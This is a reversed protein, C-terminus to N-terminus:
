TEILPHYHDPDDFGALWAAAQHCGQMTPPVRLVYQHGTSPCFVALCVLPEDNTMAVRLLERVGGPDSDSDLIEVQAESMFRAYGMRELLVRRKEANVESLVESSTIEEPRLLIREDILIGRWALEAKSVGSPLSTLNTDALDAESSIELDSPLETINVCGALDLQALRSLWTPLMTLNICNRALLSGFELRGRVPWESLNTCGSIDLFYLSLGEPLSTLATCGRLILSGTKFNPPLTTLMTNDALDLRFQVQLSAPLTTLTTQRMELEYCVLNEPLHTLNTCGNLTLRRVHLGDPLTTLTKCNALDLSGQVQLNPPAQNALILERVEKPTVTLVPQTQLLM